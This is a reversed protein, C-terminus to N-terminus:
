FFIGIESAKFLNQHLLKEQWEPIDITENWFLTSHMQHFFRCFCHVSNTSLSFTTTHLHPAVIHPFTAWELMWDKGFHFLVEIHNPDSRNEHKCKGSHCGRTFNSNTKKQLRAFDLCNLMKYRCLEFFVSWSFFQNSNPPIVTRCYSLSLAHTRVASRWPFCFRFHGPFAALGAWTNGAFKM